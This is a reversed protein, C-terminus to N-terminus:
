NSSAELTDNLYLGATMSIPNIEDLNDGFAKLGEVTADKHLNYIFKALRDKQLKNMGEKSKLLMVNLIKQHVTAVDLAVAILYFIKNSSRKLKISCYFQQSWGTPGM